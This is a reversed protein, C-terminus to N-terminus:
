NILAERHCLGVLLFTNAAVDAATDNVNVRREVVRGYRDSIGLTIRQAPRGSARGTELSATLARWKGSLAGCLLGSFLRRLEAHTVYFDADLSWAGTAFAGDSRQLGSAQVDLQDFVYRGNRVVTATWALLSANLRSRSETTM